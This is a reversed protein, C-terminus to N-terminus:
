SRQPDTTAPVPPEETPAEVPRGTYRMAVLTVDDEFESSGQFSALDQLIEGVMLSPALSAAQRIREYLGAEELVKGTSHQLVEYLGDSFLVLGDGAELQVTESPRTESFIDPDMGLLRNPTRLMEIEGNARLLVQAPHGATAYEMVGTTLDVRFVGVTMFFYTHTFIHMASRNIRELMAEPRKKTLTLRRVLGHIRAVVLAAAIGHGSVDAICLYLYKGEVVNVHVYDGGVFRSPIQRVVVEADDRRVNEPMLTAQVAQALKLEATVAEHSKELNIRIRKEEGLAEEAEVRHAKEEAHAVLARWKEEEAIKGVRGASGLIIAWTAPAFLSLLKLWLDAGALFTLVPIPIALLFGMWLSPNRRVDYTKEDTLARIFARLYRWSEEVPARATNSPDNTNSM